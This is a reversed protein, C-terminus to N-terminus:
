SPALPRSVDQTMVKALVYGFLGLALPVLLVVPYAFGAPITQAATAAETVPETGTAVPAAPPAAEAPATLPVAAQPAAALGASPAPLTDVPPLATVASPPPLPAQPAAVRPGGRPVTGASAPAPSSAKAPPAVQAAPATSAAASTYTLTLSAPPTPPSPRDHSSFVVRWTATPAPSLPLIELDLTGSALGADLAPLLPSLDGRFEPSPDASYTLPASLTCDAAPPPDFEGENSSIPGMATCVQLTATEPAASGNGPTKTDLPITLAAATLTGGAPAKGAGIALVTRATEQGASVGVHLTGAGFPNSPPPTVPAACGVSPACGPAPQYWTEAGFSAETTSTDARAAAVPALAVSAVALAAALRGSAHTRARRV